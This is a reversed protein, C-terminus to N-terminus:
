RTRVLSSFPPLLFYYLLFCRDCGWPRVEEKQHYTAWPFVPIRSNCGVAPRFPNCATIVVKVVAIRKRICFAIGWSRVPARRGIRFSVIRRPARRSVRGPLLSPSCPPPLLSPCLVSCRVVVSDSVVLPTLRTWFLNGLSVIEKGEVGKKFTSGSEWRSRCERRRSSPHSPKQKPRWTQRRTQGRGKM